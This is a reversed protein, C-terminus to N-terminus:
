NGAERSSIAQKLYHAVIFVVLAIVCVATIGLPWVLIDQARIIRWYPSTQASAGEMADNYYQVRFYNLTFWTGVQVVLAAVSVGLAISIRRQLM